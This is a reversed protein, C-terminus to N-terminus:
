ESKPIAANSLKEHVVKENLGEIEIMKRASHGGSVIRIHQKSLGLAKAIMEEVARNAKGKETNARVRLKLTGELWGAICDRSSGPVVKISLKLRQVARPQNSSNIAQIL